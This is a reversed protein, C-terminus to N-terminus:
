EEFREIRVTADAAFRVAYDEIEQLQHQAQGCGFGWRQRVRENAIQYAERARALFENLPYSGGPEFFEKIVLSPSYCRTAVGDPWRVEFRMEPM